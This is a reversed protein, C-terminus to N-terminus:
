LSKQVKWDETSVPNRISGAAIIQQRIKEADDQTYGFPKSDRPRIDMYPLFTDVQSKYYEESM